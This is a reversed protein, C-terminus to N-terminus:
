APHQRLTHRFGCSEDRLAADHLFAAWNENAEDRLHRGAKAYHHRLFDRGLSERDDAREAAGGHVVGEDLMELIHGSAMEGNAPEFSGVAFGTDLFFVLAEGLLAPPLIDRASM